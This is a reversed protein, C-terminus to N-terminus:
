YDHIHEIALGSQEFERLRNALGWVKFELLLRYDNAGQRPFSAIPTLGTTTAAPSLITLMIDDNGAIEVFEAGQRAMSQLIRTFEAYRPTQIEIGEPRTGVVVVGPIAALAEPPIDKVISRITLADQGTAEVASAIVGAYASKVRNEVTLAVAREWDRPTGTNTNWLVDADRAFNWKYWPTQSLFGAYQAAQQASLNDLPARTDGRVLTAIRGITEEYAAKLAMEATFSVGITYLTQKSEGTFGGHAGAKKSLDCLSTWYGKIASFFDFDQPDGTEIVRAYDEYVHVIHWEPYTTYTRSEDRRSEPPLLSTYDNALPTGKCTFEVWLVPLALAIAFLIVLLVLRRLWVTLWLIFRM